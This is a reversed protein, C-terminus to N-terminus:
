EEGGKAKPAPIHHARFTAIFTKRSGEAELIEQSTVVDINREEFIEEV